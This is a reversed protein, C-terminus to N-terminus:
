NKSLNETGLQSSSPIAWSGSLESTGVRYVVAGSNGGMGWGVVFNDNRLMGVGSYGEGSALKWKVAYTSGQKTITVTGQYAGGSEPSTGTVTYTGDLGAPGKLTETGLKSGTKSSAWRGTLTGGSVEYVVVGYDDGTGWGVGLIGDQEIGVGSYSESPLTWSLKYHETQKTIEVKGKYSGGGPNSASSITYSGAISGASSPAAATPAPPAPPAPPLEEQEKKKCALLALFVIIAPVTSRGLKQM